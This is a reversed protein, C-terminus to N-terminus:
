HEAGHIGPRSPRACGDSKNPVDASSRSHRDRISRRTARMAPRLHARQGEVPVNEATLTAHRYHAGQSRRDRLGKRTATDVTNRLGPVRRTAQAPLTGRQSQHLRLRIAQNRRRRKHRHEHGPHEHGSIAKAQGAYDIQIARPLHPPRQRGGRAAPTPWGATTSTSYWTSTIAM